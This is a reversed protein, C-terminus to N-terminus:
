MEEPYIYLENIQRLFETTIYNKYEYYNSVLTDTLERYMKQDSKKRVSYLFSFFVIKLCAKQLNM